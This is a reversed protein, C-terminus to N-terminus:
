AVSSGSIKCCDKLNFRHLADSLLSSVKSMTKKRFM